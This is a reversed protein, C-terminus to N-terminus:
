GAGAQGDIPHPTVLWDLAEAADSFIQLYPQRMEMRVQLSALVSDTVIAIRAARPFRGEAFQDRFVALVDQPQVGSDRMDIRLLYGPSFGQTIFQAKVDHAYREVADPTFLGRWVIDLLNLDHRFHIEYM